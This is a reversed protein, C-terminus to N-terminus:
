NSQRQDVIGLPCTREDEKITENIQAIKEENRKEMGLALSIWLFKNQRNSKRKEERGEVWRKGWEDITFDNQIENKKKQNLINNSYQNLFFSFSKKKKILSIIIQRKKEIKVKVEFFFDRRFTIAM